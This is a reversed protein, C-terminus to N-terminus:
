FAFCNSIVPNRRIFLTEYACVKCVPDTLGWIFPHVLAYHWKSDLSPRLWLQVYTLVIPVTHEWSSPQPRLRSFSTSVYCFLLIWFKNCWGLHIVWGVFIRELCSVNLKMCVTNVRIRSVHFIHHAGLLALLHCIPNLETNLPIIEYQKDQRFALLQLCFFVGFEASKGKWKFVGKYIAAISMPIKVSPHGVTNKLQNKAKGTDARTETQL